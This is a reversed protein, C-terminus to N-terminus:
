LLLQLAANEREITLRDRPTLLHIYKSRHELIREAKTRLQAPDKLAALEDRLQNLKDQAQQLEQGRYKRLESERYAIGQELGEINDLPSLYPYSAVGLYSYYGARENDPHTHPYITRTTGLYPDTYEMRLGGLNGRGERPFDDLLHRQRINTSEDWIHPYATALGCPNVEWPHATTATCVRVATFPTDPYPLEPPIFIYPLSITTYIADAKTAKGCYPCPFQSM